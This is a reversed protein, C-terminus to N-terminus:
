NEFSTPDGNNKGATMFGHDKFTIARTPHVLLETHTTVQTSTQNDPQQQKNEM